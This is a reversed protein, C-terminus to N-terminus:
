RSLTHIYTLMSCRGDDLIPFVYLNVHFHKISKNEWKIILLTNKLLSDVAETRYQSAHEGGIYKITHEIRQRNFCFVKYNTNSAISMTNILLLSYSSVLSMNVPLSNDWHLTVQGRWSISSCNHVRM